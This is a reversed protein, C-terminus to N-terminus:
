LDPLTKMTVLGSTWLRIIRPTMGMPPPSLCLDSISQQQRLTRLTRCGNRWNRSAHVVGEERNVRPAGTMGIPYMHYFVAEEYWKAM